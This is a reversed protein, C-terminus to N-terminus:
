ESLMKVPAVRLFYHAKYESYCLFEVFSKTDGNLSVKELSSDESFTIGCICTIM